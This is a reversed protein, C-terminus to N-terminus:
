LISNTDHAKGFQKLLTKVPASIGGPLATSLKYWVQSDSDMVCSSVPKVDILVPKIKLHFHTFQHDITEWTQYDLVKLQFHQECHKKLDVDLACEPFSWLGGWIGTPPRRELFIEGSPRRLLLINTEKTPRAPPKKRFPFDAERGELHAICDASLPCHECSPKSRTCITAGLDMMAQNYQNVNAQPTNNKAIEWLAQHVATKGPWGEVAFYRTLVRKVNGDLITAPINMAFSAIAGATSLGIGPLDTLAEVTKPFRGNHEKHLIIATRHLNRARAYYGLGSWHSLVDDVDALALSKLNPFSHMFRQYYPIVTNVQTQQLMIESVWVRYATPNKQWPLDHRGHKQYWALLKKAITM